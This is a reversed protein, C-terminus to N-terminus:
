SAAALLAEAEGIYRTAGAYRFFALAKSLQEDAEVRRGAGVLQEAARMRAHASLDPRDMDDLTDAAAVFDGDLALQAVRAWRNHGVHADAIARLEAAIGIRDAVTWLRVSFLDGGLFETAHRRAEDVDGLRAEVEAVDELVNLLVQPDRVKRATELAARANAQAEEDDGRAFAIQALSALFYADQYSGGRRESDDLFSRAHALFEDWNGVHYDRYILVARSFRAVTSNGFREAARVAERVLEYSRRLDGLEQRVIAGLNNYARALGPSNTGVGVDIARELDAIGGLDGGLCRASGINVLANVLVDDIGLEEAMAAAERGAAVAEDTDGGLGKFRAIQALVVAKSPSTPETEILVRARDLQAQSRERQGRHWWFESLDACAEAALGSAAVAVLQDRAHELVDAAREDGALMLARGFSFLLEARTPDDAPWLKLAHGFFRVASSHAHLALAREGAERLARRAREVLQATDGGAAQAYELAAVYHHALMEAHDDPRGLSEIWEAALRHKDARAARPIQGYAVDRVLVHRFAYEEDDEVSSRRERRVFDKRALSHLAARAATPERRLSGLWFVKGVVAADQLLEKETPPLTDLRAAIIGQVSEPLTVDDVEGRERYLRAFQEAYLPNGGSRELLAAQTEALLLSQDLLSSVLRATDEERLPSVHITTANLKGGGWDARRELLEPRTTGLVLLPVGSAWDVLHDVFDLLGEDAWHLDEFVLVLPRREALAEFFRGWAAFAEERQDGREAEATSVGALPRLHREVWEVENDSVVERVSRALKEAADDPRDDERIGAHAKVMESLAWFSVGEGYPLSRGQRWYTLITGREIAQFLEYVLRSKGIGPAGVLTLLQPSREEKVRELIGVLLDLERDRGFLPAAGHQRVDVGFRSRPELASWVAVPEAKGKAEVVEHAGFDIVHRTARYTTEGVLIGGSPAATQLRAATNVVDGAALPEAGVTILAEGTNVGIRLDVGEEEAWDRIAIAARVAREPDDEHAVPAGFLAMVADGIFKEVSGGWRELVSRVHTHYPALVARVDEPDMTEARATFGVLDAFLVTVVKREERALAVTLAAGCADCFRAAERNEHGCAPCTNM